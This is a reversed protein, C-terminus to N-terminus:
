DWLELKSIERPHGAGGTVRARKTKSGARTFTRGNYQARLAPARRALTARYVKRGRWALSIICFDLM